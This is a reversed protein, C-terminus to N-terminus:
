EPPLDLPIPCNADSFFSHIGRVHRLVLIQATKLRCRTWSFSRRHKGGYTVLFRGNADDIQIHVPAGPPLYGLVFSADGEISNWWRAWRASNILKAARAKATPLDFAKNKM